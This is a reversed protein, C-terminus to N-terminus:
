LERIRVTGYPHSLNAAALLVLLDISNLTRISCLLAMGIPLYSLVISTEQFKFLSLSLELSTEEIKFLSLSLVPSTEQLQTFSFEIEHFSKHASCIRPVVVEVL